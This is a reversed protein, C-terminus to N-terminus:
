VNHVFQLTKADIFYGNFKNKKILYYNQNPFYYAYKDLFQKRFIDFWKSKQIQKNANAYIHEAVNEGGNFNHMLINAHYVHYINEKKQPIIKEEKFYELFTENWIVPSYIAANSLQNYKEKIKQVYPHNPIVAMVSASLDDERQMSLILPADLLPAIPQNLIMDTDFYVGGEELALIRCWDSAFNFRKSEYNTRIFHNATLDCNTEDWRKIKFDPQHKQWTQISKKVEDPLEKSGLWVYHFTKPIKTTPSSVNNKQIIFFAIIVFTFVCLLKLTTKM